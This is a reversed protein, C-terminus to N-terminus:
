WGRAKLYASVAGIVTGAAAIWGLLFKLKRATRRRWRKDEVLELLDAKGANIEKSDELHDLYWRWGYLDDPTKIYAHKPTDDERGQDRDRDYKRPPM